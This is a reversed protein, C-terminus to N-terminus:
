KHARKGQRSVRESEPVDSWCLLGKRFLTALASDFARGRCRGALARRLDASRVFRDHARADFFKLIQREDPTMPFRKPWLPDVITVYRSGLSFQLTAPFVVDEDRPSPAQPGSCYPAIFTEYLAHTAETFRPHGVPFARVFTRGFPTLQARAAAPRRHTATAEVLERLNRSFVPPSFCAIARARGRAGM